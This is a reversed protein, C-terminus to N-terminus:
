RTRKPSPAASTSPRQLLRQLDAHQLLVKSGRPCFAELTAIIAPHVGTSFAVTDPKIDLNHRKKNWAVVLESMKKTTAGMDLYGWNEHQLREQLAKTISPAARFDMDAIGM